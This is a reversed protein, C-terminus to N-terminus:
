KQTAEDYRKWEKLRGMGMYDTGQTLDGGNLIGQICPKQQEAQVKVSVACEPFMGM